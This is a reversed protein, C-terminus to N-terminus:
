ALSERGARTSRRKACGRHLSNVGGEAEFFGATSTDPSGEVRFDRFRSAKVVGPYQHYGLQRTFIDTPYKVLQRSQLRGDVLDFIWRRFKPHRFALTMFSHSVYRADNVIVIAKWVRDDKYVSMFGRPM